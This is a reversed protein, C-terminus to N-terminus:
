EEATRAPQWYGNAICLYCLLVVLLMLYFYGDVLVNCLIFLTLALTSCRMTDELSTCRRKFLVVVFIGVMLAVQLHLLQSPPVLYTVWYSFNMPMADAHTAMGWDTVTDNFIRGAAARLFPGVVLLAGLCCVAAQKAAERLGRNRYAYLLVFPIILWTFQYVAASIGFVFAASLNRKRFLLLFAVVLTLWHPAIYLEHRYQLFPNLYFLALLAAVERRHEKSAACFFITATALNFVLAGIRLDLHAALFPLYAVVMGPLYPFNYVRHDIYITAYPDIHHLLNTGSWQIVPLMDSRLYTLPFSWIALLMGGAYIGMATAFIQWATPNRHATLVLIATLAAAYFFLTPPRHLQYGVSAFHRAQYFFLGGSLLEFLACLALARRITWRPKPLEKGFLLRALFFLFLATIPLLLLQHHLGASKQPGGDGVVAVLLLCATFFTARTKRLNNLSPM